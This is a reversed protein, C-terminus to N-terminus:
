SAEGVALMAALAASMLRCGAVYTSGSGLDGVGSSSGPCSPGHRRILHEGGNWPREYTQFGPLM